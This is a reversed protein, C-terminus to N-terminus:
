KQAILNITRHDACESANIKKEIIINTAKTFDNPWKGAESMKRRKCVEVLCKKRREGLARLLKAPIGDCGEAKLSKLEDIAVLIENDILESSREDIRVNEEEQNFQELIPKVDKDYIYM